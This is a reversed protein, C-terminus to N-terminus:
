IRDCEWTGPPTQVQVHRQPPCLEGWLLPVLRPTSHKLCRLVLAIRDENQWDVLCREHDSVYKLVRPLPPM